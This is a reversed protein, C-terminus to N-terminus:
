RAAQKKPRGRNMRSMEESRLAENYSRIRRALALFKHNLLRSIIQDTVNCTTVFNIRSVITAVTIQQEQPSSSLFDIAEAIM